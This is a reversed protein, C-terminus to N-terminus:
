DFSYCAVSAGLPWVPGDCIYAPLALSQKMLETELMDQDVTDDAHDQCPYRAAFAVESLSM